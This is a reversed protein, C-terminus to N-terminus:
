SFCAGGGRFSRTGDRNVKKRGCYAAPLRCYEAPLRCYIVPLRCYLAPQIIIACIHVFTFIIIQFRSENKLSFAGLGELISLGLAYDYIFLFFAGSGEM